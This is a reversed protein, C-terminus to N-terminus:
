IFIVAYDHIKAGAAGLEFKLQIQETGATIAAQASSLVIGDETKRSLSLASFTGGDESVSVTHNANNARCLLRMRTAGAPVSIQKSLFSGSTYVQATATLSWSSLQISSSVSQKTQSAKISYTKNPDLLLNFSFDQTFGQSGPRFNVTCEAEKTAGDYIRIYINQDSAGSQSGTISFKTMTGYGSPTFRLMESETGDKPFEFRTQPTGNGFTGSSGSAGETLVETGHEGFYLNTYSATKKPNALADVFASESLSVNQGAHDAALLGMASNWLAAETRAASIDLLSFNENMQDLSVPDALEWTFLNLKQTRTM